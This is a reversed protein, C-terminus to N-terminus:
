KKAAETAKRTLQAITDLSKIADDVAYEPMEQMIVMARKLRGDSVCLGNLMEGEESALWEPRVGCATAFQVTYISGQAESTELKSINAQTVINNLAGALENQTLKAYERALKLRQGYKM